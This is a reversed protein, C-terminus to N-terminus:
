GKSKPVEKELSSDVQNMKEKVEGGLFLVLIGLISVFFVIAIIKSVKRKQEELERAKRKEELLQLEYKSMSM